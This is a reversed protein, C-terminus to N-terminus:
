SGDGAGRRCGCNGKVWTERLLTLSSHFALTQISGVFLQRPRANVVGSGSVESYIVRGDM